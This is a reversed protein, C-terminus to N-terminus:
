VVAYKTVKTIGSPFLQLIIQELRVLDWHAVDRTLQRDVAAPLRRPARLGPVVHRHRAHEQREHVRAESLHDLTQERVCIELCM